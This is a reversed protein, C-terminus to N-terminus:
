RRADVDGPLTLPIMMKTIGSVSAAAIPVLIRMNRELHKERTNIKYTRSSISLNISEGKQGYQTTPSSFPSDKM